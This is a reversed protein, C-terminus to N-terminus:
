ARRSGSPVAEGDDSLCGFVEVSIIHYRKIFHIYVFQFGDRRSCYYTQVNIYM